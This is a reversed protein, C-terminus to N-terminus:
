ERAVLLKSKPIELKRKRKKRKRRSARSSKTTPQKLNRTFSKTGHCTSRSRLGGHQYWSRRRRMRYLNRHAAKVLLTSFERPQTRWTGICHHWRISASAM